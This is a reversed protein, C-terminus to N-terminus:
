VSLVAERSDYGVSIKTAARSRITEGYYDIVHDIIEDLHVTPRYGIFKGIKTIDPVRRRMDEFGDDFVQHYPVFAISSQSGTKSKVKVALDRISIEAGNGINFVEGCTHPNEVLGILASVVDGVWTFSRTQGGDGHVVIPEGSLARRVFNPLVMGYQPNQRPGVTNFLRVVRVPLREEKWYGLALFEDLLKGTAYNWRTKHPPGVVLDADERFPLVTSKGYVESTSVVLVNKKGRNAHRLVTETGHVNTHITHIPREVVFKVGLAAALHFVTDCEDVLPGLIAEDLVSGIIASFRDHGALHEINELRGTSLDDLIAVHHGEDLLREALHSGIFGAGGTILARM